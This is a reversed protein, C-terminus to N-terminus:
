GVDDIIDDLSIAREDFAGLRKAVDQSVEVCGVTDLATLAEVAELKTIDVESDTPTQERTGFLAKMMDGWRVSM